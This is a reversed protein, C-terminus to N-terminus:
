KEGRGTDRKNDNLQLVHCIRSDDTDLVVNFGNAQVDKAQKIVCLGKPHPCKFKPKFNLEADRKNLYIIVNGAIVSLLCVALWVLIFSHAKWILLLILGISLLLVALIKIYHM